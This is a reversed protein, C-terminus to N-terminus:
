RDAKRLLDFYSETLAAAPEAVGEQRVVHDEPKGMAQVAGGAVEAPQLKMRELAGAFDLPTMPRDEGKERSAIKEVSRIPLAKAAPKVAMRSPDGRPDKSVADSLSEKDKKGGQDGKAKLDGQKGMVAIDVGGEKSGATEDKTKKAVQLDKLLAADLKVPDVKEGEHQQDQPNSKGTTEDQDWRIPTVGTLDVTEGPMQQLYKEIMDNTIKVTADAPKEDPQTEPEPAIVPLTAPAKEEPKPPEENQAVAVPRPAVNATGGHRGTAGGTGQLLGVALTTVLLVAAAVGVASWNRWRGVSWRPKVAVAGADSMAKLVTQEGLWGFRGPDGHFELASSFLDETGARQDLMKALQLDSPAKARATVGMVLLIVEAAGAVVGLSWMPLGVLRHLLWCLLGVNVAVGIVLLGGRAIWEMVWVRRMRKLLIAVATV